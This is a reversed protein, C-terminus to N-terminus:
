KKIDYRFRVMLTCIGKMDAVLLLVSEPKKSIILFLIQGLKETAESVVAQMPAHRIIKMMVLTM